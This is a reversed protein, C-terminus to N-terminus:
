NLKVIKLMKREGATNSVNVFYIGSELKLNLISSNINTNTAIQQSAIQKGAIDTIVVNVNENKASSVNLTFVDSFPNPFIALEFQTNLNSNQSNDESQIQLKGSQMITIFCEPGFNAAWVGLVRARASVAYTAGATLGLPALSRQNVYSALATTTVNNLQNVFKFEYAGAQTVTKCTITATAAVITANAVMSQCVPSKLSTPAINAPTPESLIGIRCRASETGVFGSGMPTVTMDYQTGWNLPTPQGGVNPIVFINNSNTITYLITNGGVAYVNYIYSTAGPVINVKLKGGPLNNIYGCQAPAISGQVVPMCNNVTVLQSTSASCGNSTGIVSYTTSVTPSVTIGATTQSNSWTYSTAGSATLTTSLGNCITTTGSISLELAANVTVAITNSTASGCAGMYFLSYNGTTSVTISQTTEGTNWNYSAASSATLMVSGGECFTTPGNAMISASTQSNNVNIANTSIAGNTTFAHGDLTVGTFMGIAANNAVIVGKFDTFDALNVAGEIKWFVNKAQTGNKLVVIAHATTALAGNIKIVFVANANGAADLFLTDTFTTAGNLLYTHPTLVLSAGFQAPFLLEIDNQLLNLNSYLTGLDAAAADTSFDPIPHINGSVFLANFGTTLGVNTGVDGSINSIGSNTVPGNASLIGYCGTSGMPPLAPGTLFPSGCGTPTYATVDSVSVAGATSLARGELKVGSNLVIAANNAIITGKMKTGAAMSVLGEIKWFVNCAQANNILRIESLVSTSFSGQIQIIFVADADGQADLTLSNNLTAAGSVFYNGVQLTDDNGLLPSPFFGPISGNIELYAALVDAACQSTAGNQSNMVGNVNGFGTISGSNTGVNGTLHTIGTNTVAGTSTFLVYGSATGLNPALAFGAVPLFLLAVIAAVNLVKNKM